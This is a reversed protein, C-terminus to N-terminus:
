RSYIDIPGEPQRCAASTEAGGALAKPLGGRSVGLAACAAVTGVSDALDAVATM